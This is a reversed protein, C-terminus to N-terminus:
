TAPWVNLIQAMANMIHAMHTPGYTHIYEMYRLILLYVKSNIWTIAESNYKVNVLRRADKGYQTITLNSKGNHLTTWAIYTNTRVDIYIEHLAIILAIHKSNNRTIRIRSYKVNILKRAHKM